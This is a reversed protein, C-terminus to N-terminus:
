CFYIFLICLIDQTMTVWNVAGRSLHMTQLTKRIDCSRHM